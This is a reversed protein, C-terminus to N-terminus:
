IMICLDRRGNSSKLPPLKGLGAGGAAEKDKEKEKAAKDLAKQKERESEEEKEREERKKDAEEERRMKVSHDLENGFYDDNEEKRRSFLVNAKRKRKLIM